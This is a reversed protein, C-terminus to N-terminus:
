RQVPMYDDMYKKNVKEWNNLASSRAKNLENNTKNYDQMDANIDNVAKNYQDIDQKTRQSGSKLEFQKKLKNFNEEKLFYGSM